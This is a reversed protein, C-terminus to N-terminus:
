VLSGKWKGSKLYVFSLFGLILSYVCEAAWVVSINSRAVMIIYWAYALYIILVIVEIIFSVQTKGTGSVASFFIFAAALMLAAVNVVHVVPMAETILTKDNTYIMVAFHPLFTGIIVMFGVGTLCLIVVKYVLQMVEDQRKSGILFSVLTNIAAALGWMPIMLVMYFSRIINSIALEREGMKEVMLFFALWSALSLFNQMMMPLSVRIIQLYLKVDFGRFHFLHYKSTSFLYKTYIIFFITALIEAIVSALAAGSIGMEPFGFNGFILCYDLFANVVAMILTTFTIVRTHAVGVYFARFIVQIFAFFVGYSRFNLYEGTAKRIEVSELISGLIDDSFFKMISFMILALPVLFYAAHDITSGIEKYSAEGNRRAVIIQTGIGFGWALMVVVFYYVGGIAGAGLEIEGVRGLFATDTVNLINQAISGLIIPYAIRIIENYKIHTRFFLKYFKPV